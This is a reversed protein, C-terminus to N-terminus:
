LHDQSTRVSAGVVPAGVSNLASRPLVMQRVDSGNAGFRKSIGRTGDTADVWVFGVWWCVWSIGLNSSKMGGGGGPACCQAAVRESIL